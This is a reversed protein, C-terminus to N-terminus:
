PRPYWFRRRFPAAQSFIGAGLEPPLNPDVTFQARVCGHMKPHANRLIRNKGYDAEMKARLHQILNDIHLHEDPPPYENALEM